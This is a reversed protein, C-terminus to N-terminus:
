KEAEEEIEDARERLVGITLADESGSAVTLNAELEDAFERLAGSKIKGLFRSFEEDIETATMPKKGAKIYRPNDATQVLTRYAHRVVREDPTFDSM